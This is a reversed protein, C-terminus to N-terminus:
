FLFTQSRMAKGWRYSFQMGEQGDGAPGQHTQNTWWQCGVSLSGKLPSWPSYALPHRGRTPRADLRQHKSTSSPPLLALGPESHGNFAFGPDHMHVCPFTGPAPWEVLAWRGLVEDRRWAEWVLGWAMSDPRRGDRGRGPSRGGMPPRKREKEQWGWPRRRGPSHADGGNHRAASRNPLPIGGPTHPCGPATVRARVCWVCVCVCMGVCM